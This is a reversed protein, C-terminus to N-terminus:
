FLNYFADIECTRVSCRSVTNNQYHFSARVSWIATVGGSMAATALVHIWDNEGVWKNNGKQIQKWKVDIELWWGLSLGRNWSELQTKQWALARGVSLCVFWCLGLCHTDYNLFRKMQNTNAPFLCCMSSCSTKLRAIRGKLRDCCRAKVAHNDHDSSNAIVINIQNRRSRADRKWGDDRGVYSMSALYSTVPGKEEDPKLNWPPQRGANFHM